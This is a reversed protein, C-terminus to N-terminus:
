ACPAMKATNPVFMPGAVSTDAFVNGNGVVSGAELPEDILTVTPPVVTLAMMSYLTAVWNPAIRGDFVGAPSPVIVTVKLPWVLAEAGIWTTFPAKPVKVTLWAPLPGAM